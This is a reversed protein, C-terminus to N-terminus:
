FQTGAQSHPAIGPPNLNAFLRVDGSAAMANQGVSVVLLSVALVAAVAFIADQRTSMEDEIDSCKNNYRPYTKWEHIGSISSTAFQSERKALDLEGLIRTSTKLLVTELCCKPVM